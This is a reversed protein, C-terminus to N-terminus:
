ANTIKQTTLDALLAKFAETVNKLADMVGQLEAQVYGVSATGSYTAHSARSNTGTWNSWGTSANIWILGTATTSDAALRANNAGVALRTGASSNRTYLDGKTILPSSLTITTGSGIFSFGSTGGAITVTPGTVSGGGDGQIVTITASGPVPTIEIQQQAVAQGAYDSYVYNSDQILEASTDRM